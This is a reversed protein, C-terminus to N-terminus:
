GALVVPAYNIKIVETLDGTIQGLLAWEYLCLLLMGRMDFKM